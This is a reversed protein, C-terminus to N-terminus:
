KGWSQTMEKIVSIFLPSAISDVVIPRSPAKPSMAATAGRAESLRAITWTAPRPARMEASSGVAVFRGGAVAFGEARPAVPEMTHVRAGVVILEPDVALTRAAVLTSPALAGATAAAAVGLFERRSRHDPM